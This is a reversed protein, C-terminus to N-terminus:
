AGPLATSNPAGPHLADEALVPRQRAEIRASAGEERGAHQRQLLARPAAVDLMRGLVDAFGTPAEVEPGEDASPRRIPLTAMTAFGNV